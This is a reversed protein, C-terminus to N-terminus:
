FLAPIAKGLLAWGLVLGLLVALAGAVASAARPLAAAVLLGLAAFAFYTLGRNLYDWSRDPVVSWWLSLGTWAVFLGFAAGSAITARDLRPRPLVGLFALAWGAAALAVAAVAVPFLREDSSAGGFFLTCFLLAGTAAILGARAANTM